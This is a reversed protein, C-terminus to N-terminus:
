KQKQNDWFQEQEEPLPVSNYTELVGLMERRGWM